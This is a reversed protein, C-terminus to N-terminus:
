YPKSVSLPQNLTAPSRCLPAAVVEPDPPLQAPLCSLKVHEHEAGPRDFSTQASFVDRQSVRTTFPHKSRSRRSITIASGNFSKIKIKMAVQSTYLEVM